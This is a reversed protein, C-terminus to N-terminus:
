VPCCDCATSDLGVLRAEISLEDASLIELEDFVGEPAGVLVVPDSGFKGELILVEYDIDVSATTIVPAKAWVATPLLFSSVALMLKRFTKSNKKMLM